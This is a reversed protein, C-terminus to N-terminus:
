QDSAVQRGPLLGIVRRVRSASCRKRCGVARRAVVRDRPGSGDEIVARGAPRQRTRVLHRRCAFRVGARVAVDVVVIIERGRVRIAVTAVLRGPVTRGGEAPIHWVM